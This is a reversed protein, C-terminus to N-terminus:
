ENEVFICEQENNQLDLIKEVEGNIVIIDWGLISDLYTVQEGSTYRREEREEWYSPKNEQTLKDGKCIREVEQDQGGVEKDEQVGEYGPIERFFSLIDPKFIFIMVSAIVIITIIAIILKRTALEAM